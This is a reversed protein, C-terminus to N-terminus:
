NTTEMKYNIQDLLSNSNAPRQKASITPQDTITELWDQLEKKFNDVTGSSIDRLYRPLVNFLKAGHVHISAEVAKRVAAPAQKPYPPVHIQRGRRDSQTVEFEYGLTWGQLVKWIFIIRARERRREQSFLKLHKLRGWYDMDELGAIRSTFNRMVSEIKSISTQDAPSWFQAWYDLKPQILSRWITIMTLSSRRRFSRLAWGILKNASCVANQIQESFSLDSSVIVGLDRLSNKVAIPSGDPALYDFEETGSKGPWFRLCEFKESNFIMNVDTAWGYISQLDEQLKQCDAVNSCPRTVRTDDVFSSASSGNMVGRTIDAIHLLFLIPGLVTGQPVGSIM